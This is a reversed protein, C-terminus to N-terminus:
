QAWLTQFLNGNEFIPDRIVLFHRSCFLPLLLPKTCSFNLFLSVPLIYCHLSDRQLNGERLSRPPCLVQANEAIVCWKSARVYLILPALGNLMRQSRCCDYMVEIGERISHPPCPQQADKQLWLDYGNRHRRTCLSPSLAVSCEKFAVAIM